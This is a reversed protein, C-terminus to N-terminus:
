KKEKWGCVDVMQKFPSFLPSPLEFKDFWRWEECKDPEKVAPIQEKYYPKYSHLTTWFLLTVWHQGEMVCSNFPHPHWVTPTLINLGTEEEVERVATLEPKEGYEMRGGPLSWTGAGHSGKRKGLLVEDKNNFIIVAVGVRVPKDEMKNQGIMVLAICVAVIQLV